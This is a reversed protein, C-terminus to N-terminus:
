ETGKWLPKIPVGVSKLDGAVNTGTFGSYTQFRYESARTVSKVLSIMDCNYLIAMPFENIEVIKPPGPNMCIDLTYVWGPQFGPDNALQNAFAVAESPVDTALHTIEGNVRYPSVAAIERAAIIFRYENVVEVAPAVFLSIDPFILANFCDFPDTTDVRANFLALLEETSGVAKGTFLKIMRDPKVFIKRQIGGYRKLVLEFNDLLWKMPFLAFDSNLM